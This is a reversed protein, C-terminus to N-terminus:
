ELLERAGDNVAKEVEGAMDTGYEEDVEVLMQKAREALLIDEEGDADRDGHRMRGYLSGLLEAYGSMFELDPICSAMQYVMTVACDLYEWMQVDGYWKDIIQFLGTSFGVELRFNRSESEILYAYVKKGAMKPAVTFSGM